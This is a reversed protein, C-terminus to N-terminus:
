SFGHIDGLPFCTLASGPSCNTVAVPRRALDAALSDFCDLMGAYPSDTNVPHHGFWHSRGDAHPQMDYGILLIHAAGLQHALNIAQYGSNMGTHLVGPTTGLGPEKRGELWRLGYELAAEVDVTVREGAFDPVGKHWRWWQLDCAYLVDAWPALRYADNIAIVPGIARAADV